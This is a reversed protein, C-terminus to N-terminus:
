GLGNGHGPCDTRHDPYADIASETSVMEVVLPPGLEIIRYRSATGAPETFKELPIIEGATTQAHTVQAGCDPCM